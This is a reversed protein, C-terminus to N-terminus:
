FRMPIFSACPLPPIPVDAGVWRGVQYPAHEIAAAVAAQVAAAKADLRTRNSFLLPMFLLLGLTLAPIAESLKSAIEKRTSM